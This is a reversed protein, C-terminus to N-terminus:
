QMLPARRREEKLPRDRHWIGSVGPTESPKQYKRCLDHQQGPDVVWRLRLQQGPVEGLREPPHSDFDAIALKGSGGTSKTWFNAM